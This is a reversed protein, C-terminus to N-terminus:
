LEPAAARKMIASMTEERCMLWTKSPRREVRRRFVQQRRNGAARWLDGHNTVFHWNGPLAARCKRSLEKPSMIAAVKEVAITEEDGATESRRLEDVSRQGLIFIEHWIGFM